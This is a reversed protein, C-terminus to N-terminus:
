PTQIFTTERSLFRILCLNAAVIRMQVDGDRFLFINYIQIRLLCEDECCTSLLWVKCSLSSQYYIAQDLLCDAAFHYTIVYHLLISWDSRMIFCYLGILDWITQKSKNLTSNFWTSTCGFQIPSASNCVSHAHQWSFLLREPFLLPLSVYPQNM